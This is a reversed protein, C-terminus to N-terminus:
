GEAGTKLLCLRLHGCAALPRIDEGAILRQQLTVDSVIPFTIGGPL